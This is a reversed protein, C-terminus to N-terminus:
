LRVGRPSLPPAKALRRDVMARTPNEVLSHLSLALIFTLGTMSAAYVLKSSAPDQGLHRYLQSLFLEITGFSMYFAYSLVGLFRLVPFKPFIGSRLSAAQVAFGTLVMWLGAVVFVDATCVLSLLIVALGLGALAIDPIYRALVPLLKATTIGLIFEPFFRLLSYAFTLNLGGSHFDVWALALLCFAALLAALWNPLRWISFWLAPFLLYGAWETSVSWSPYNWALQNAVGWGHVLLLNEVLSSLTFRGPDRPTVGVALGIATVTALLVIVALHVPYIRALRRVWFRMAGACSQGLEPHVRALIIGSLLFFGDVGLYGRRILGACPGLGASFHAHLDVHYAFVWAAFIARCITLDTIERTGTRM